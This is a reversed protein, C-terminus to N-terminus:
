DCSVVRPAKVLRQLVTGGEDLVRDTNPHAILDEMINVFGLYMRRCCMRRVDCKELAVAPAIGGQVYELYPRHAVMANCTYCRVPLMGSQGVGWM